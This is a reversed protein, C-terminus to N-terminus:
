EEVVYRKGTAPDTWYYKGDLGLKVKVPKGTADDTVTKEYDQPDKISFTDKLPRLNEDATTLVDVKTRANAINARGARDAVSLVTRIGEESINPDRGAAQEIMKSEYDSIQGQGKMQQRANIALWALESRLAETNAIKTKGGKNLGSLSLARAADLRLESGIGTIAGNDLLARVTNASSILSSASQGQNVADAVQTVALESGPKTTPLGISVKTGTAEKGRM